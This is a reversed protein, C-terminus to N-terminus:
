DGLSEHILHVPAQLWVHRNGNARPRQQLPYLTLRKGRARPQAVWAAMSLRLNHMTWEMANIGLYEPEKAGRRTMQKISTLLCVRYGLSPYPSDVDEVTEIDEQSLFPRRPMSQTPKYPHSHFDGIFRWNPWYSSVIANMNQLGHKSPTVSNHDREANVDTTAAEVTFCPKGNRLTTEYGWLLGYTELYKRPRGKGRPPSVGSYSEITALTISRFASESINVLYDFQARVMEVM